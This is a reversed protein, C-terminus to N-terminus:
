EVSDAIGAGEDPGAPPMANLELVRVIARRSYLAHVAFSSADDYDPAHCGPCGHPELSAALQQFTADLAPVAANTRSFLPRFASPAPAPVAVAARSEVDHVVPEGSICAAVWALAVLWWRTM